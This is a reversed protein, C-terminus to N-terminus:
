RRQTMRSPLDRLRQPYHADATSGVGTVNSYDEDWPLVITMNDGRIVKPLVAPVIRNAEGALMAGLSGHLRLSADLEMLNYLTPQSVAMSGDKAAQLLAVPTMWAHAVAESEDITVSQGSPLAAAFFRTDFRRPIASPTIWHAWYVLRDVELRLQAERIFIAFREPQAVIARREQQARQWSDDQCHHGEVTTALLVGTEEFTERCAAVALGMCQAASLSQGDIDALQACRRRSSEPILALSDASTDAPCLAGGPFVWMGGMFALNEHRRVVLVETRGSQEQLLLV